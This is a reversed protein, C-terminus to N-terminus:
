IPCRLAHLFFAHLKWHMLPNHVDCLRVDFPARARQYHLQESLQAVQVEYYHMQREAHGRKAEEKYKEETVEEALARAAATEEQLLTM